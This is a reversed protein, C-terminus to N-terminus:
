RSNKHQELRLPSACSRGVPGTSFDARQAGKEPWRRSAAAFTTWVIVIPDPTGDAEAGAPTCGGGTEDGGRALPLEEVELREGM